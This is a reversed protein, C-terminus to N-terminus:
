EREADVAARIEVALKRLRRSWVAAPHKRAPLSHAQLYSDSLVAAAELDDSLGLLQPAWDFNTESCELVYTFLMDGLARLTAAEAAPAFALAMERFMPQEEQRAASSKQHDSM